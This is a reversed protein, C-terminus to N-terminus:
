TKTQYELVMDWNYGCNMLFDMITVNSQFGSYQQNYSFIKYDSYRLEIGNREFHEEKQYAKAGIGSYYIECGLTNCIDIIRGENTSNINLSSSNIFKSNIALKNCIYKIIKINLLSLFSDKENLLIQFDAYIEDFNDANRYNAMLLNLHNDRWNLEDKVKVENIKDVLTQFVPIKIKVPGKSTKLYHYNHMGNNSYQVDDLFVFYDAQSIKYFYGLWPIYNPQHIAIRKKL